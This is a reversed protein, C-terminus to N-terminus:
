SPLHFGEKVVIQLAVRRRVAGCGTTRRRDLL